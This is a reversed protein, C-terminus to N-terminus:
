IKGATPAAARLKTPIRAKRSCMYAHITISASYSVEEPAYGKMLEDLNEKAWVDVEARSLYYDGPVERDDGREKSAQSEPSVNDNREKRHFRKLSDNGDQTGMFPFVLAPEDELKYMCAPCANKLRWDPTDRGLAVQIRKEVIALTALYLDFAISFQTSLHPRFPVQLSM